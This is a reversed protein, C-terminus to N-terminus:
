WQHSQRTRNQSIPGAALQANAVKAAGFSYGTCDRWTNYVASLAAELSPLADHSPM